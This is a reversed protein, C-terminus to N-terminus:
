LSHKRFFNSDPKSLYERVEAVNESSPKWVVQNAVTKVPYILGASNVAKIMDRVLQQEHPANGSLLAKEVRGSGSQQFVKWLIDFFIRERPDTIASEVDTRSKELEVWQEVEGAQIHIAKAVEDDIQSVLREILCGGFSPVFRDELRDGLQIEGIYCDIFFFRSLDGNLSELDISSIEFNRIEVAPGYYSSGHWAITQFIDMIISSTPFKQCVYPIIRKLQDPDASFNKLVDAGVRSLQRTVGVYASARLESHDSFFKNLYIASCVDVFDSSIFVKSEGPSDSLSGVNDVRIDSTNILGPLRLLQGLSVGEPDDGFLSRYCDAVDRATIPGVESRKRAVTALQGYIDLLDDKMLPLTDIQEVERRCFRDLLLAWGESPSLAEIDDIEHTEPMMALYALLLPRRPMWAPPQYNADYKKLFEQTDSESAIDELEFHDWTDDAGLAELLESDDSFFHSRGAVILPADSPTEASFRRIILLAQKRIDQMRQARKRALTPPIRPVLEDFGDLLLIVFGARWARVLKETLQPVGLREAHRRLAEDPTELNAFDRLNLCVPFLDCRGSFHERCFYLFMERLHMSKGSGFDGTIVARNTKGTDIRKRIQHPKITSGGLNKHRLGQEFFVNEKFDFSNSRVDM